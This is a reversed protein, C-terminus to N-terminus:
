LENSHSSLRVASTSYANCEGLRDLICAARPNLNISHWLGGHAKLDRHYAIEKMGVDSSYLVVYVHKTHIELLQPVLHYDDRVGMWGVTM